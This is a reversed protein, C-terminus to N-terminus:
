NESDADNECGIEKAEKAEVVLNGILAAVSLAGSLAEIITLIVNAKKM